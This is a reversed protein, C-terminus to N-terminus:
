LGRVMIRGHRLPPTGPPADDPASVRGYKTYSPCFCQGTDEDCEGDCRAATWGRDLWSKPGHNRPEGPKSFWSSCGRRLREGCDAGTTGAPCRCTGTTYDCRGKGNCDKPCPKVPSSDSPLIRFRQPTQTHFRYCGATLWGACTADVHPDGTARHPDV